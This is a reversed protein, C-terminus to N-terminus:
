ISLTSGMAARNLGIALLALLENEPFNDCIRRPEGFRGFRTAVESSTYQILYPAGKENRGGGGCGVCRALDLSLILKVM